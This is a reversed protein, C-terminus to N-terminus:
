GAARCQRTTGLFNRSHAAVRLAAPRGSGASNSVPNAFVAALRLGFVLAIWPNGPKKPSM